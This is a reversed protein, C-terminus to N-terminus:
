SSHVETSLNSASHILFQAIANPFENRDRTYDPEPNVEIVLPEGQPDMMLDVGAVDLGLKKVASLALDRVPSPVQDPAHFKISGGHTGNCIPRELDQNFQYRQNAVVIRGDVVDIRWIFANPNPIFDQVLLLHDEIMWKELYDWPPQSSPFALVGNASYGFATKVILNKVERRQADEIVGMLSSQSLCISSRPHPIGYHQFALATLAKNRATTYARPANLIRVHHSLRDLLDLQTTYSPTKEGMRDLYIVDYSNLSSHLSGNRLQITLDSWEIFECDHGMDRVSSRINEILTHTEDKLIGIRLKM